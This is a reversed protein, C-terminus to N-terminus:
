IFNYMKGNKKLIDSLGNGVSYKTNERLWIKADKISNYEALIKNTNLCIRYIKRCFKNKNSKVRNKIQEKISIERLNELRNDDRIRNIHDISYNKKETKDYYTYYLLSHVKCNKTKGFDDLLCISSYGNM